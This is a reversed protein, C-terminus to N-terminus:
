TNINKPYIGLLPIIPDYPLKIKIKQPVKMSNEVTAADTQIGLLLACTNMKEWMRVLVSNRTNKFKAM